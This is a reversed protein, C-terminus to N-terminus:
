SSINYIVICDQGCLNLEEDLVVLLYYAILITIGSQNVLIVVFHLNVPWKLHRDYDGKIIRLFVSMCRNTGTGNGNLYVEAQARYVFLKM